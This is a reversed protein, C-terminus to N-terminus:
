VGVGHFYNKKLVVIGNPLNMNSRWKNHWTFKKPYHFNCIFYLCDEIMHSILYFSFKLCVKQLKIKCVFKFIITPFFKIYIHIFKLLYLPLVVVYSCLLKRPFGKEKFYFIVSCIEFLKM